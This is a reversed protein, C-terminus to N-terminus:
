FLHLSAVHMPTAPTELYLFASDIGSLSKMLKPEESPAFSVQQLRAGGTERRSIVMSSAGRTFAMLITLLLCSGVVDDRVVVHPLRVSFISYAANM